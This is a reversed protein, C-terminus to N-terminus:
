SSTQGTLVSMRLHDFSAARALEAFMPCGCEDYLEAAERYANCAGLHNGNRAFRRGFTESVEAAEHAALIGLDTSM